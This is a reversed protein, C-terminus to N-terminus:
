EEQGTLALPAIDGNMREMTRIEEASIAGIGSLATYYTSRDVAAPRTYADRNLDFITGRPLAWRSIAAAVASVKPGLSAREHFDFLSSVNSYTMSDGGSPLGVLFPPVGLLIAIRSDTFQALEVLAMEKSSKTPPAELSAGGSMIAPEGPRDARTELYGDLVGVAQDKTLPKDTKIYYPPAIGSEVLGSVYRAMTAAAVFRAGGAELPGVGRDSGAQRAYRVHLMDGAPVRWEGIRYGDPDVTVYAAPIVRFRVPYRDFDRALSLIFLEGCQYEWFAQKAFDDWSAYYDPDPNSMWTKSPVIEGGRTLYPPMSGIVSSNLDLCAWATDVLSNFGSYGDWSPDLWDTPWGAWRSPTISMYPLFAARQAAVISTGAPDYSSGRESSVSVGAFVAEQVSEAARRFRDFLGVTFEKSFGLGHCLRFRRM